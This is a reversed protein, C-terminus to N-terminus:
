TPDVLPYLTPFVYTISRAGIGVDTSGTRGTGSGNKEGSPARDVYWSPVPAAGARSATNVSSNVLAAANLHRKFVPGYEDATSTSASSGTVSPAVPTLTVNEAALPHIAPVRNRTGRRM